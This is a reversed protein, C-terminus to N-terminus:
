LEADEIDHELIHRLVYLLATGKETPWSGGISFGHETFEHLDLLYLYIDYENTDYFAKRAYKNDEGLKVIKLVQYIKELQYDPDGCGCFDFIGCWIASELDEYTCGDPAKYEFDGLQECEIGIKNVQELTMLKRKKQKYLNEELKEIEEPTCYEVNSNEDDPTTALLEILRNVFSEDGTVFEDFWLVCKMDEDFLAYVDCTRQWMLYLTKYEVSGWDGETGYKIKTYTTGM